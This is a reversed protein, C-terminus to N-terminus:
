TDVMVTDYLSNRGGQIEQAESIREEERGNGQFGETKKSNRYNQKAWFIIYSSEYLM